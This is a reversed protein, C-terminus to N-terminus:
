KSNVLRCEYIKNYLEKEAKEKMHEDFFTNVRKKYQADSEGEERVFGFWSDIIRRPHECFTVTKQLYIKNTKPSFYLGSEDGEEFTLLNDMTKEYVGYKNIIPIKTGGDGDGYSCTEVKYNDIHGRLMSQLAEFEPRKLKNVINPKESLFYILTGDDDTSSKKECADKVKIKKEFVVKDCLWKKKTHELYSEMQAIAEESGDCIEVNWPDQSNNYVHWEVPTVEQELSRYEKQPAIMSFDQSDLAILDIKKKKAGHQYKSLDCYGVFTVNEMDEDFITKTTAIESQILSGELQKFGNTWICPNSLYFGKKTKLNYVYNVDETWRGSPRWQFPILLLEGDGLEYGQADPPLSSFYSNGQENSILHDDNSLYLDNYKSSRLIWAIPRGDKKHEEVTFVEALKFPKISFTSLQDPYKNTMTMQEENAENQDWSGILTTLGWTFLNEQYLKPEGCASLLVTLGLLLGYFSFHDRRMICLWSYFFSAGM